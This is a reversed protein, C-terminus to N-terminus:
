VKQSFRLLLDMALALAMGALLPTVAVKLLMM